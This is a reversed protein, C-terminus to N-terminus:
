ESREAREIRAEVFKADTIHEFGIRWSQCYSYSPKVSMNLADEPVLGDVDTKQVLLMNNRLNSGTM